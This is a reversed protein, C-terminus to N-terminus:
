GEQELTAIESKINLIRAAMQEVQEDRSSFRMDFPVCDDELLHLERKLQSLDKKPKPPPAMLRSIGDAISRRPAARVDLIEKLEGWTPFWKGSWSKLTERVIDAPYQGLRSSYAVLTLAGEEVTESRRATIASVETLWTEIDDAVAPTLLAGITRACSPLDADKSLDIETGRVEERWGTMEGTKPNTPFVLQKKVCVSCGLKQLQSIAAALNTDPDRRVLAPAMHRAVPNAEMRAPLNAAIKSIEKM